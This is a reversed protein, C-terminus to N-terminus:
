KKKAAISLKNIVIENNGHIPKLIEGLERRLYIVYPDDEFSDEDM